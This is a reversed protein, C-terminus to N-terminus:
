NKEKRSWLLGYFEREFIINVRYIISANRRVLLFSRVFLFVIFDFRANMNKEEKPEQIDKYILKLM